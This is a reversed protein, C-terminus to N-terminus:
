GALWSRTMAAIARGSPDILKQALYEAAWPSTPIRFAPDPDRMAAVIVGAVEAPTQAGPWKGNAV